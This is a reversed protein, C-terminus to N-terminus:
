GPTRQLATSALSAPPTPACAASMRRSTDQLLREINRYSRRGLVTSTRLRSWVGMGTVIRTSHNKCGIFTRIEDAQIERLEYSRTMIDNFRRAAQAARELWRAVTNWSLAKIRAIASISVGEVSM